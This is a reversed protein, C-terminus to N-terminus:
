VAVGASRLRERGEGTIRERTWPPDWVEHVVVEDIWPERLLRARVDGTIFDMCPCATATFTLWVEVRHGDVRVRYVLGLDVVSVPLEPDRVEKLARWVVPEAGLGAAPGAASAGGAALRPERVAGRGSLEVM